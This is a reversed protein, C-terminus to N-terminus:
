VYSSLKKLRNEPEVYLGPTWQVCPSPSLEVLQFNLWNLKWSSLRWVASNQILPTRDWFVSTGFPQFIIMFSFRFFVSQLRFSNYLMLDKMFLFLATFSLAQFLIQVVKVGECWSEKLQLHHVHAQLFYFFLLIYLGEWINFLTNM